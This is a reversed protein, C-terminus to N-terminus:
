EKRKKLSFGLTFLFILFGPDYGFFCSFYSIMGIQYMEVFFFFFLDDIHVHCKQLPPGVFVCTCFSKSTIM